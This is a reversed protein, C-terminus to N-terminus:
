GEGAGSQRSARRNSLIFANLLGNTQGSTNPKSIGQAFHLTCAHQLHMSTNYKTLTRM